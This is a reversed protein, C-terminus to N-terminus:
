SAGGDMDMITWDATELAAKLAAEKALSRELVEILEVVEQGTLAYRSAKLGGDDDAFEVKLTHYILGSEPPDQVDHGFIPRVEVYTQASHFGVAHDSFLTLARTYHRLNDNTLLQKLRKRLASKEEDSLELPAYHVVGDLMDDLDWAHADRVEHLATVVGLLNNPNAHGEVGELADHMPQRIDGVGSAASLLRDAVEPELRALMQMVPRDREPVRIPVLKAM